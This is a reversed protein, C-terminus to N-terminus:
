QEYVTIYKNNSNIRGIIYWMFLIIYPMDIINAGLLSCSYFFLLPFEVYYQKRHKYARFLSLGLILMFPIFTLIGGELLIKFYSGDTVRPHRPDAGLAVHGSSGVGLGFIPSYTFGNFAEIWQASRSSILSSSADKSFSEATKAVYLADSSHSLLNVLLGIILALVVIKSFKKFEGFMLYYTVILVGIYMAVRQRALLVAIVSAIITLISLLKLFNRKKIQIKNSYRLLGFGFCLSCIGLNATHYSDMFSAFRAFHLTEETYYGHLNVIELAKNVYTPTPFLLFYFGILLLIMIGLTSRSLFDPYESYRYRGIFYFIVPIYSQIFVKVFNELPYPIIICGAITIFSSLFYFLVLKDIQSKARVYKLNICFLLMWLAQRIAGPFDFYFSMFALIMFIIYCNDTVWTRKNMM